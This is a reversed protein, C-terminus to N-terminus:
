EIRTLPFTITFSTGENLVSEFDIKGNMLDVYKTVIYLGLGTGQINTVNKARFFREFLHEQDEKSIGIGSDKVYLSIEKKGVTTEVEISKNEPSFKIANSLLNILINKIFHRDLYVLSEGKHRYDIRQGTKLIGQLETIAEQVQNDIPFEMYNAMVKGEELKGMSLFDSLILTLNNVASKVRQVHKERKDEEETTKYKSILSVSSLITSLPTRFEHSAMSVFRSKMDNLEKEKELAQSLEEKSRELELLAEQLIRTREYVKRELDVNLQKIKDQQQVRETIDIVFGIVITKDNEMFHSLSIEVPFATGNKKRGRLEMNTGMPRNVPHRHYNNRHQVHQERIQDPVLVEIKQGLLEDTKYGFQKEAQPNVMIIEAAQNTVIIGITAHNFLTSFKEKELDIGTKQMMDM